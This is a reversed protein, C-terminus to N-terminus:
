MIVVQLYIKSLLINTLYLSRTQASSNNGYTISDQCLTIEHSFMIKVPSLMIQWEMVLPSFLESCVNHPIMHYTFSGWQIAIFQKTGIGFYQSHWFRSFALWCLKLTDVKLESWNYAHNTTCGHMCGHKFRYVKLSVKGFAMHIKRCPTTHTPAHMSGHM